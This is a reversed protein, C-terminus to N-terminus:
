PTVRLPEQRFRRLCEQYPTGRPCRQYSQYATYVNAAAARVDAPSGTDTAVAGIEEGIRQIEDGSLPVGVSFPGHSAGGTLPEVFVITNGLSDRAVREGTRRILRAYSVDELPAVQSFLVRLAQVRAAAGAAQDAALELATRALDRDVLSSVASVVEDLGVHFAVDSRHRMLVTSAVRGGEVGCMHIYSLAWGRKNAPEGAVLVQEALRCHNRHHVSDATSTQGVVPQAWVGFTTACAALLLRHRYGMCRM